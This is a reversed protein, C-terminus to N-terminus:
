DVGFGPLGISLYSIFDVKFRKYQHWKIGTLGIVLRSCGVNPNVFNCEQLYYLGRLILKGVLVSLLCLLM